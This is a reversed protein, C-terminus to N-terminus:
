FTMPPPPNGEEGGGAPQPAMQMMKQMVIAQIAAIPKAPIFLECRVQNDKASSYVGLPPGPIRIAPGGANAALMPLFAGGIAEVAEYAKQFSLTGYFQGGEEFLGQATKIADPVTGGGKKAQEILADMSAPAGKGMVALVKKGVYAIEYTIPDGYIAQMVKMQQKVMPNDGAGAPPKMSYTFLDVEVGDKTRAGPKFSAEVQMGMKKYMESFEGEVSLKCAGRIADRFADSGDYGLCYAVTLGDKDASVSGAMTGDMGGILTETLKKLQGAGEEPLALADLIGDVMQAYFTTWGKNGFEGSWTMLAEKRPLAASVQHTPKPLESLWKALDTNEKATITNGLRLGDEGITLSFGVESTQDLLSVLSRLQAELMAGMAEPDMQAGAMQKAQNMAMSVQKLGNEIDPRAVRMINDIDGRVELDGRLGETSIGQIGELAGQVAKCAQADAGILALKGLNQIQIPAAGAAGVLADFDGVPVVAVVPKKFQKPNLFLLGWAKDLDVGKLNEIGLKKAVFQPSVSGALLPNIQMALQQAKGFVENISKARLYGMLHPVEVTKGGGEAVFGYKMGGAALPAVQDSKLWGSETKEGVTVRVGVWNGVRRVVDFEAGKDVTALVEEGLMVNAQDVVVKVREGTQASALGSLLFVALGAFAYQKASSM